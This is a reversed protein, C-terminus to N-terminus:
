SRFRRTLGELRMALRVLIGHQPPADQPTEQSQSTELQERIQAVQGRLEAIEQVLQGQQTMLLENADALRGMLSLVQKADANNQVDTVAETPALDFTRLADEVTEGAKVRERAASFHELLRQSYVRGGRKDHPITGGAKQYIAAYRRLLSPAFNFDESAEAPSYTRELDDMHTLTREALGAGLHTLPREGSFDIRALPPKM